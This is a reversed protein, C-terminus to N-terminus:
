YITLQRTSKNRNSSSRRTSKKSKKSTRKRTTKRSIRKPSKSRSKSRSRSRSRSRSKKQRKRRKRKCPTEIYKDSEEILSEAFNTPKDRIPAHLMKELDNITFDRIAYQEGNINLDMLINKGDPIEMHYEQSEVRKGNVIVENKGHSEIHLNM